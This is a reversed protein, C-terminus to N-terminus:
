GGLSKIVGVLVVGLVTMVLGARWAGYGAPRGLAFGGLFLMAIAIARSVNLAAGVDKMLAFPLVVPLAALVVILFIALAALLDSGNLTVRAPAEPLAVIRCRVAEVEAATM